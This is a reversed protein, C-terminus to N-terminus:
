LTVPGPLKYKSDVVNHVSHCHGVNPGACLQDCMGPDIRTVQDEVQQNPCRDPGVETDGKFTHGINNGKLTPFTGDFMRKHGRDRTEGVQYSATPISHRVSQEKGKQLQQHHSCEEMEVQAM